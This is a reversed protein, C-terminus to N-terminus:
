IAGIATGAVITLILAVTAARLLPRGFRLGAVFGVTGALPWLWGTGAEPLRGVLLAGVLMGLLLTAAAFVREAVRSLDAQGLRTAVDRGEDLGLKFGWWRIALHGVNYLVLFVLVPVWPPAGVAAVTLAILLTAPRWAGWILTDGLGGLSGQIAEKFRRITQPDVRESEMRAVAGLAIGALYPHANFPELHRNTM